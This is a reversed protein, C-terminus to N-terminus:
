FHGDIQVEMAAALDPSMKNAVRRLFYYADANDSMVAIKEELLAVQDTLLPQNQIPALFNVVYRTALDEFAIQTKGTQTEAIKKLLLYRNLNSDGNETYKVALPQDLDQFHYLALALSEAEQLIGSHDVRTTLQPYV